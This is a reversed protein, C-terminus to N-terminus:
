FTNQVYTRFYLCAHGFFHIATSQVSIFTHRHDDIAAIAAANKSRSRKWLLYAPLLGLLAVLDLFVAVWTGIVRVVDVPDSM